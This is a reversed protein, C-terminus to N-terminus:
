MKSLHELAMDVTGFSLKKSFIVNRNFTSMASAPYIAHLHLHDVLCLPWHFGLLSDQNVNTGSDFNVNNELVQKGIQEMEKIMDINDKTLTSIKGFHDKPVVLYHHQAVPKHDKFVAYKESTYILSTEAVKGCAIRCFLCSVSM